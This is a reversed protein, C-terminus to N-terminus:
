VTKRTRDFFHIDLNMIPGAPASGGSRTGIFIVRQTMGACLTTARM